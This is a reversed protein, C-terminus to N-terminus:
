ASASINKRGCRGRITRASNSFDPSQAGPIHALKALDLNLNAVFFSNFSSREPQEGGSFLYNGNGVWVGGLFIGSDSQLGLQQGLWGSGTVINVAAPNAAISSHPTVSTLETANTSATRINPLQIQQPTAAGSPESAALQSGSSGAGAGAQAPSGANVAVALYAHDAKPREPTLLLCVFVGALFARASRRRVWGRTCRVNRAAKTPLPM